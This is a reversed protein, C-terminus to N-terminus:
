KKKKKEKKEKKEKKKSGFLPKRKKKIMELQDGFREKNEADTYIKMEVESKEMISNFQELLLKQELLAAADEATEAENEVIMRRIEDIYKMDSVSMFDIRKELGAYYDDKTKILLPERSKLIEIRETIGNNVDVQHQKAADLRYLQLCIAFVSGGILAFLGIVLGVIVSSTLAWFILFLLVGAGASVGIGRTINKTLDFNKSVYEEDHIYTKLYDQNERNQVIAAEMQHYRRFYEAAQEVRELETM